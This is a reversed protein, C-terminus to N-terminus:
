PQRARFRIFRKPHLPGVPAVDRVVMGEPGESVVTTFPAGSRWDALDGSVEVAGEFLRGEVPLVTMQLHRRGEVEVVSVPPRFVSAADVPSTGFVFELFNAVGDRDADDDASQPHGALESVCWQDFSMVAAAKMLHPAGGSLVEGLIVETADRTNWQILPPNLPNAAPWRWSPHRFLIWDSGGAGNRFGWIWAKGNAQYPAANSSLTVQGQFLGSGAHYAATSAAVWHAAWSGANAATPEFGGTFTGLQFQFFGDMPLEGADVNDSAPDCFWTITEGAAPLLPLLFSLLISSPRSM